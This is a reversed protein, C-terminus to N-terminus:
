KIINFVDSVEYYYTVFPLILNEPLKKLTESHYVLDKLIKLYKFLFYFWSNKLFYM